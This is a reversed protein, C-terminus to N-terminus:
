VEGSQLSNKGTKTQPAHNIVIEVYKKELSIPLVSSAPTFNPAINEVSAIEEIKIGARVPM